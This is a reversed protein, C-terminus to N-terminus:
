PATLTKELFLQRVLREGVQTRTAQGTLTFGNHQFFHLAIPNFSEVAARLKTMGATSVLWAELLALAASAHGQRQWPEAVM